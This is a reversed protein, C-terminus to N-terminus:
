LSDKIIEQHDRSSRKRAPARVYENAGRGVIGDPFDM